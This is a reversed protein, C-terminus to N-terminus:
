LASQARLAEAIELVARAAAGKEEKRSALHFPLGLPPQLPVFASGALQQPFASRSYVVVGLGERVAQLGLDPYPDARTRPAIGAAAFASLVRDTFGSSDRGASVLISEDVLDELRVARRGALRHDSPMHVLASEERLLALALGQPPEPACFTVALDVRGQTVDRLLAGTTDESTYIMVGPANRACAALLEPGVGYRATPTLGLRLRGATASDRQSVEDAVADAHELLEKGRRLLLEGAATLAIRRGSRELLAVGLQQELQKVAASLSPQSIHLLEAARTVNGERAVAVFYRVLRLDPTM